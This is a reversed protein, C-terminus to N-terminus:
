NMSHLTWGREAALDAPNAKAEFRQSSGEFVFGQIGEMGMRAKAVIFVGEPKSIRHTEDEERYVFIIQDADNEIAGSDRLDAKTPVHSKLRDQPKALQSLCLVPIDQQKAIQKLAHSNRTTGEVRQESGIDLLGLYDVVVLDPKVEAVLERLGAVTYEECVDILDHSPFHEAADLADCDNMDLSGGYLNESALGWRQCCRIAIEEDGMELSNFLVRKGQKAAGIAIELAAATKGHGSRGALIILNGPRMGRTLRQVKSWPYSIGPPMPKERYGQLKLIAQSLPRLGEPRPPNAVLAKLEEATHGQLIWDTVDGKPPLGPLKVVKVQCKVEKLSRRVLEAHERGPDDNDPLIIVNGGALAQSYAPQWKGAGEYNTTAVFGLGALTDADKEGEVLLIWRGKEVAYVVQPLNYLVRQEGIRWDWGGKGDPRRIRFDKPYM